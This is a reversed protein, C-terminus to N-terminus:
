KRDDNPRKKNSKGNPDNDDAEKEDNSLLPDAEGSWDPKHIQGWPHSFAKREPEKTEEKPPRAKIVIPKSPPVNPALPVTPATPITPPTDKSIKNAGKSSSTQVNENAAIVWPDATADPSAQAANKALAALPSLPQSGAGTITSSPSPVPYTSSISQPHPPQFGSNPVNQQGSTRQPDAQHPQNDPSQLNQPYQQQQGQNLQTQQLSPYGIGPVQHTGTQNQQSRPFGPQESGPAGPYQQGQFQDGPVPYGSTESQRLKKQQESFFDDQKNQVPQHLPGQRIRPEGPMAYPAQPPVVSQPFNHNFAAASPRGPLQSYDSTISQQTILQQQHPTLHQNHQNSQNPQYAPNNQESPLQWLQENYNREAYNNPSLGQQQLNGPQANMYQSYRGDPSPQQANDWAGSQMQPQAQGSALPSLPQQQDNQFAGSTTGQYQGTNMGPFTNTRSTSILGGTQATPVGSQNTATPSQPANNSNAWANTQAPHTMNSFPNVPPAPIPPPASAAQVAPPAAATEIGSTTGTSPTVKLGRKDLIQEVQAALTTPDFPKTLVAIAGMRTLREIETTMAKATLFIVPIDLTAPNKQLETLTQVGDMGPMMMDLLIVDPRDQEAKAIGELGGEAEVVDVGGLISLSMSAISRTDDEDDIILVKM